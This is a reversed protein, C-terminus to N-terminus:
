KKNEVCSLILPMFGKGARIHPPFLKHGCHSDRM